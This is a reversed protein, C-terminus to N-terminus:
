PVLLFRKINRLYSVLRYLLTICNWVKLYVDINEVSYPIYSLRSKRTRERVNISVDLIRLSLM